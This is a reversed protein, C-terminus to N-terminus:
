RRLCCNCIAAHAALTLGHEFYKQDPASRNALSADVLRDVAHSLAFSPAIQCGDHRRRQCERSYLILLHDSTYKGQSDGTDVAFSRPHLKNFACHSEQMNTAPQVNRMGAENRLEAQSALVVENAAKYWSEMTPIRAHTISRHLLAECRRQLDETEGFMQRKGQWPLLMVRYTEWRICTRAPSRSIEFTRFQKYGGGAFVYAAPGAQSKWSQYATCTAHWPCLSAFWVLVFGTPPFSTPISISRTAYLAALPKTSHKPSPLQTGYGCTDHGPM